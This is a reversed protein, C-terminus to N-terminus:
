GLRDERDAEAEEVSRYRTVGPRRRGSRTLARHFALLLATVHLNKPDDAARWPRPMEEISRYRQVPM